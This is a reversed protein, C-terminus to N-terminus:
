YNVYMLRQYPGQSDLGLGDMREDQEVEDGHFTREGWPANCM